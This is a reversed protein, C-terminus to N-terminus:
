ETAEIPTFIYVGSQPRIRFKGGTYEFVGWNIPNWFMTREVASTASLGQVNSGVYNAVDEIKFTPNALTAFTNPSTTIAIDNITKSFSIDLVNKADAVEQGMPNWVWANGDLEPNMKVLLNYNVTSTDWTGTTTTVADLGADYGSVSFSKLIPFWNMAPIEMTQEGTVAVEGYVSDGEIIYHHRNGDWRMPVGTNYTTAYYTEAIYAEHELPRNTPISSTAANGASTRLTGVPDSTPNGATEVEILSFTIAKNVYSPMITWDSYSDYKREVSMVINVRNGSLSSAAGTTPTQDTGRGFRIRVEIKQPLYTNAASTEWSGSEDDWVQTTGLREEIAGQTPLYEKDIKVVGNADATFDKEAYEPAIGPLGKIKAYPLATEEDKDYVTYSVSGDAWNVYESVAQSHYNLIVNYKEKVYVVLTGPEGPKGPEGDEGADGKPGRCGFLWRWFDALTNENAPWQRDDDCHDFINEAELEELWLEYASLGDNGNDGKPGKEGQPGRALVGLNINGVWWYGDEGIYPTEGDGGRDGPAGPIGQPGQPGTAPVGTNEGNIYWYNNEIRPANEDGLDYGAGQCGRLYDFFDALTNKAPDWPDNEADSCIDILNGAELEELWIDYASKGAVGQPGQPGEPGEPLVFHLDNACSAVLVCLLTGVFTRMKLISKM